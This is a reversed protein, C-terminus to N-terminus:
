FNKNYDKYNPTRQTSLGFNADNSRLSARVIAAFVGATREKVNVEEILYSASSVSLASLTVILKEGPNFEIRDSEFEIHRPIQSQRKLMNVAAYNATYCNIVFDSVTFGSIASDITFSNASIATINRRYINSNDAQICIVMDGTTFSQATLVVMTTTTGTEALHYNNESMASDRIINGYVGTGAALNQM